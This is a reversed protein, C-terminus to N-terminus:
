SPYQDKTTENKAQNPVLIISGEYFLVPVAGKGGYEKPPTTMSGLDRPLCWLSVGIPPTCLIKPGCKLVVM